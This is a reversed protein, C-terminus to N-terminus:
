RGSNAWIWTWQTQSAMWGGWGRNGGEGARLREWCWSRKWHTPEECTILIYKLFHSLINIFIQVHLPHYASLECLFLALSYIQTELSILGRPTELLFHLSSCTSSYKRGHIKVFKWSTIHLCIGPLSFDLKKGTLCSSPRTPLHRKIKFLVFFHLM